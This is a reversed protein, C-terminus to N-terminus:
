FFAAESFIGSALVTQTKLARLSAEKFALGRRRLVSRAGQVLTQEGRRQADDIVIIFDKALRAEIIELSGVRSLHQEDPYAPPGDIILFDVEPGTSILPHDYYEIEFRGVTKAKLAARILPHGIQAQIKDAWGSDHEITAVDFDAHLAARLKSILLTSQGAGLELIHKVPLDRLCRTIFYLLSHNGSAGVPYFVDEIGVSRLERLFLDRYVAEMAPETDNYKLILANTAFLRNIVKSIMVRYATARIHPNRDLREECGRHQQFRCFGGKLM